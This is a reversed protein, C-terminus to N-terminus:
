YTQEWTDRLPIVTGKLDYVKGIDTMMTHPGHSIARLEDAYCLIWQYYENSLVDKSGKTWVDSDGRSRKFGIEELTKSLTAHWRNGATKLGYVAKQLTM